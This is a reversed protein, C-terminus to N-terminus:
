FTGVQFKLPLKVAASMMKDLSYNQSPWPEEPSSPRSTQGKDAVVVEVGM